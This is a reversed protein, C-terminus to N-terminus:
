KFDAEDFLTYSFKNGYIAKSAVCIPIFTNFDQISAFVQCAASWKDVTISTGKATAHHINLGFVGTEQTGEAEPINDRDNDRWVTMPGRQCLALYEGHHLDLEYVGLYQGSVLIGAGKDNMPRKLWYEGPQTTAMWLRLQKSGKKNTYYVGIVDDFTNQRESEARVGFINLNLPKALDFLKFKRRQYAKILQDQTIHLLDM